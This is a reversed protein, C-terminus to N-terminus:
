VSGRRSPTFETSHGECSLSAGEQWISPTFVAALKPVFEGREPLFLFHRLQLLPKLDADRQCLMYILLEFLVGFM